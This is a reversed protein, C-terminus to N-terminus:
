KSQEEPDEQSKCCCQGEVVAEETKAELEKQCFGHDHHHHHCRCRTKVSFELLMIGALFLFGGAIIMGLCTATMSSTGYYAMQMYGYGAHRVVRVGNIYSFGFVNLVIAGIIFVVACVLSIISIKKM